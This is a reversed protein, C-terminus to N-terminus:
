SPPWVAPPMGCAVSTLRLMSCARSSIPSRLPIRRSIPCSTWSLAHWCSPLGTTALLALSWCPMGPQVNAAGLSVPRELVGVGATNIFCGDAKGRQVVKTDGTAIAVGATRAAAVMSHVIRQLDAVAFGEELIFGASISRDPAPSRWIM